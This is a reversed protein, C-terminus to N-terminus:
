PKGRKAKSRLVVLILDRGSELLEKATQLDNRESDNVDESEAIVEILWLAEESSFVTEQLLEHISKPKM